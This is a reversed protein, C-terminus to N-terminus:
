FVTLRPGSRCAKLAFSLADGLDFTCEPFTVLESILDDTMSERFLVKGRRVLSMIQEHHVEKAESSYIESIPILEDAGEDLYDVFVSQYANSEVVVLEPQYEKYFQYVLERQDPLRVIKKKYTRDVLVRKQDRDYAIVVIAFSAKKPNRRESSTALDVGMYREYKSLDKDDPIIKVEDFESVSAFGSSLFSDDNQYQLFFVDDGFDNRISNLFKLSYREPWFSSGDPLMAPQIYFQWETNGKEILSLLKGYLDERHYRTGILHARTEDAMVDLTPMAVHRFWNWLKERKSRSHAHDIDVLDDFLIINFHSGGLSTGVGLASITPEPYIETRNFTLASQTWKEARAPDVVDRFLLRIWKNKECLGKIKGVFGSSKESTKSVVGIRINPDNLASWLAFGVDLITSNHVVSSNAIYLGHTTQIDFVEANRSVREVKQLRKVYLPPKIKSLQFVLEHDAPLNPLFEEVFQRAEEQIAEQEWGLPYERLDQRWNRYFRWGEHLKLIMPVKPSIRLVKSVEEAVDVWNLKRLELTGPEPICLDFGSLYKKWRVQEESDTPMWSFEDLESRFGYFSLMFQLKKRLGPKLFPSAFMRNVKRKISYVTLFFPRVVIPDLSLLNFPLGLSFESEYTEKLSSQSVHGFIRRLRPPLSLKTDYTRRLSDRDFGLCFLFALLELYAPVSLDGRHFNLSGRSFDRPSHRFGIVKAGSPLNILPTFEIKAGNLCAFKEDYTCDLYTGDDFIARYLTDRFRATFLVTNPKDFKHELPSLLLDGEKIKKIPLFGKKTSVLSDGSVCKWSGRPGLFLTRKNSLQFDIWDLHFPKLKLGLIAASFLDFRKLIAARLLRKKAPNSIRM